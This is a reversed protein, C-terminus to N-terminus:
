RWGPEKQDLYDRLMTPFDTMVGTAGLKFAREFEDESNLVWLYTQPCVCVCVHTCM